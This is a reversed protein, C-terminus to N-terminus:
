GLLELRLQNNRSGVGFMIQTDLAYVVLCPDNCVPCGLKSAIKGGACVYM